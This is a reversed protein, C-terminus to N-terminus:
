IRTYGSQNGLTDSTKLEDDGFLIVIPRDRMNALHLGLTTKGVGAAGQLHISYGSEIYRLARKSLREVSPTNIFNQASANFVTTM